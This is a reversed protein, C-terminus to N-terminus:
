KLTIYGEGESIDYHWNFKCRAEPVNNIYLAMNYGDESLMSILINELVSEDITSNEGYLHVISEILTELDINKSSEKLLNRIDNKYDM